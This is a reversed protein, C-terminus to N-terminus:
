GVVMRIGSDADFVHVKESPYDLKVTDGLSLMCSASESLRIEQDEFLCTVHTENGLPEVVDVVADLIARGNCVFHEPRIGVIVQQNVQGELGEPVPLLASGSLVKRSGDVDVLLGPLLNMQPAGIFGAVFLNGPTNYLELPTGIQEVQGANMVVIRDAMTMAETQDHTVYISTTKLRQHLRKIEKRMVSRLKADLNSLPEDFLFVAPNRVIARGMAVRQRQGGSLEKPKRHMYDGLALIESVENVAANIEERPRKELELSFSINQRVNMHPYLAYSQFVMAINRDKPLKNNVVNGGIVVGGSDPDELGAIMRLLTSKGCGSPGVLAVFESDEIIISVDNIVQTKGFTKKINELRVESM